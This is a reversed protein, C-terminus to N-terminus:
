SCQGSSCTLVGSWVTSEHYSITGVEVMLVCLTPSLYAMSELKRRGERVDLSTWHADCSSSSGEGTGSAISSVSLVWQDIPQCSPGCLTSPRLPGDMTRLHQRHKGGVYKKSTVRAWHCGDPVCSDAIHTSSATTKPVSNPCKDVHSWTGVNRLAYSSIRCSRVAITFSISMEFASNM